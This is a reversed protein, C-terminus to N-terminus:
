EVEIFINENGAFIFNSWKDGVWRSVSFIKKKYNKIIFYVNSSQIWFIILFYCYNISFVICSYTIPQQFFSFFLLVKCDSQLYGM